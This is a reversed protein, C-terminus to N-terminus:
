FLNRREVSRKEKRNKWRFIIGTRIMTGCMQWRPIGVTSLGAKWQPLRHPLLGLSGTGKRLTSGTKPQMAGYQPFLEYSDEGYRILIREGTFPQVGYCREPLGVRAALATMLTMRDYVFLSFQRRDNWPTCALYWALNGNLIRFGWCERGFAMPVHSKRRNRCYGEMQVKGCLIRRADPSCLFHLVEAYDARVTEPLNEDTQLGSEGFCGRLFGLFGIAPDGDELFLDKETWLVTRELKM